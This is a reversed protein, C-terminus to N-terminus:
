SLRFKDVQLQEVASFTYLKLYCFLALGSKPNICSIEMNNEREPYEIKINKRLATLHKQLPKLIEHQFLSKELAVGGEGPTTLDKYPKTFEKFM